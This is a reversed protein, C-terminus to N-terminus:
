AGSVCISYKRQCLRYGMTGIRWIRGCLPGFSSAIEVGFEKLMMNRVEEADVREPVKVCTVTPLKKEGEAFLELGMARIGETLAAKTFGTGKM